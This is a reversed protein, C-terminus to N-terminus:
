LERICTPNKQLILNICCDKIDMAQQEPNTPIYERFLLFKIPFKIRFKESDASIIWYVRRMILLALGSALLDFLRKFFAYFPKNKLIPNNAAM